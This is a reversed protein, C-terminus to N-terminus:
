AAKRSRSRKKNAVVEFRGHQGDKEPRWECLGVSFGARNVLNFIQDASIVNHDYQILVEASWDRYEPRYRLDNMGGSGGTGVRVGDERMRPKGKIRVLEQGDVGVGDALVFFMQRMDTMVLGIMKGARVMAKKLGDAPFGDGSGDEFKYRAQEYEAKPDRSERPPKNGQQTALMVHRVKEGARHCILSTVGKIHVVVQKQEIPRVVVLESERKVKAM